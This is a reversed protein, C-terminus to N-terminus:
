GNDFCFEGIILHVWRYIFNNLFHFLFHSHFQELFVPMHFSIEEMYTALFLMIKKLFFYSESFFPKNEPFVNFLEFLKLFEVFFFVLHSFM